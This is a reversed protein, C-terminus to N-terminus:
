SREPWDRTHGQQGDQDAEDFLFDLRGARSDEDLRLDWKEQQRESFWLSIAQFEEVSLSDIAREIEEVRSM